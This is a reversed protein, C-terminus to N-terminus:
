NKINIKKTHKYSQKDNKLLIMKYSFTQYQEYKHSVTYRMLTIGFFIIDLVNPQQSIYENKMLQIYQTNKEVQRFM